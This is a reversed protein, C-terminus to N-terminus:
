SSATTKVMELFDERVVVLTRQCDVKEVDCDQDDVETGIPLCHGVNTQQDDALKRLAELLHFPELNHENVVIVGFLIPREHLDHEEVKAESVDERDEQAGHRTDVRRLAPM